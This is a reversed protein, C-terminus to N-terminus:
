VGPLWKTARYFIYKIIQDVVFAIVSIWLIAAIIIETAFFTAMMDILKGIGFTAGMLEAVVALGWSLALAVRIGGILEPTIAPLIIKRFIQAKTAGLTQAHQYYILPINRVANLTNIIICFFCYIAVLGIGVVNSVGFWMLLFPIAVLSPTVRMMDVPLELLNRLTENQSMLLGIGAGLSIGILAGILTRMVTYYIHPGFGETRGLFVLEPLVAFGSVFTKGVKLPSPLRVSGLILGAGWWVLLVM